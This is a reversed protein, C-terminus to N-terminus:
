QDNRYYLLNHDQDIYVTWVEDSYVLDAYATASTWYAQPGARPGTYNDPESMHKSENYYQIYDCTFLEQSHVYMM